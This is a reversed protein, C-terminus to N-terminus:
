RLMLVFLPYLRRNAADIFAPRRLNLRLFQRLIAGASITSNPEATPFDLAAAALGRWKREFQSTKKARRRERLPLSSNVILAVRIIFSMSRKCSRLRERPPQLRAKMAAIIKAKRRPL